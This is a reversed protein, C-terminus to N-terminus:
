DRKEAQKAAQYERRVQALDVTPKPYKLKMEQFADLVITAM